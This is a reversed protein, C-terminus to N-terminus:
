MLRQIVLQNADLGIDVDLLKDVSKVVKMVNPKLFRRLLSKLLQFLDKALFPVMPKDTQYLTLFPTM